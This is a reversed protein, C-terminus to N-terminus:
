LPFGLIFGQFALEKAIKASPPPFPAGRRVARMAKEDFDKNGSPEMVEAKLLSGQSSIFIRIRCVLKKDQLYTPLFWNKKVSKTVQDGYEAYEQSMAESLKSDGTIAQGKSIKNGALILGNYVKREKVGVLQAGDQGIVKAKEKANMKAVKKQGLNKLMEHLGLLKTKKNEIKPPAKGKQPSALPVKPLVTKSKKTVKILDKAPNIPERTAKTPSAPLVERKIEIPKPPAAPSTKKNPVPIGKKQQIQSLRSIPKAGETQINKPLSNIKELEKRTLHPMDVMDVRIAKGIIKPKPKVDFSFGFFFENILLGLLLFVIHGILSLFIFKKLKENEDYQISISM